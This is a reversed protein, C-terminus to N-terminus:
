FMLLEVKRRRRTRLRFVASASKGVGEKIHSLQSAFLEPCRKRKMYNKKTIKTESNNKPNFPLFVNRSKPKLIIKLILNCFFM